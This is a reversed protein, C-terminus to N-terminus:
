VIKRRRSLQNSLNQPSKRKKNEETNKHFGVDIVQNLPTFCDLHTTDEKRDTWIETKLITRAEAMYRLFDGTALKCQVQDKQIHTANELQQVLWRGQQSLYHVFANEVSFPENTKNEVLDIRKSLFVVLILADEQALSIEEKERISIPASLSGYQQTDIINLLLTTTLLAFIETIGEMTDLAPIHGQETPTLQSEETGLRVTLSHCLYRIYRCFTRLADGRRKSQGGRVFSRFM